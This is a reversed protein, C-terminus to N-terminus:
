LRCLNAVHLCNYYLCSHMAQYTHKLRRHAHLLTIHLVELVRFIHGFKRDIARGM